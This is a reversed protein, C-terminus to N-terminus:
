GGGAPGSLTGCRATSGALGRWGGDPRVNTWLPQGLAGGAAQTRVDVGVQDGEDQRPVAVRGPVRLKGGLRVDDPLDDDLRLESGGSGDALGTAAVNVAPDGEALRGSSGFRRAHRGTSKRMMPRM